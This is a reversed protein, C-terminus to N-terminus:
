GEIAVPQIPSSFKLFGSFDNDDEDNNDQGDIEKFSSSDGGDIPNEKRSSSIKKISNAYGGITVPETLRKGDRPPTFVVPLYEDTECVFKSKKFHEKLADLGQLRAYTVECIKRSNFAEWPQMHFSKYLRWAAKPSTLNVFGYGVNCKNNFDIPLYVFDYSSLPEDEGETIQENGHLCHNDLMNLLLKQSYKNPINKIMVTTRLDMYDSEEKFLFDSYTPKQNQRNKSSSSCRNSNKSHSSSKNSSILTQPDRVLSNSYPNFLPPPLPPPYNQNRRSCTANNNNNSSSSTKTKNKNFFRKGQGGPRSFEICILKGHIDKGNMESLARAADRIDFFEIFRHQRKSPTERLEKIPGFAEFIEKLMCSSVESDLNFVVLTGQNEWDVGLVTGTPVSFQAWVARGGILGLEPVPLPEPVGSNLGDLGWNRMLISYHVALRSQQRMHQGQIGGLASEADRLDYFHVTVIGESIREMQVGRVGGFGELERRVTAETVNTPVSSLLLSRTSGASPPDAPQPAPRVHEQAPRVYAPYSPYTYYIQPLSFPLHTEPNPNRPKFEKAGPDLIGPFRIGGNM